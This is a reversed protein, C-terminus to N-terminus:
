IGLWGRFESGHQWPRLRCGVGFISLDHDHRLV